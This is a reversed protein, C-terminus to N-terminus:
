ISCLLAIGVSLTQIIVAFEELVCVCVCQDRDTAPVKDDPTGHEEVPLSDITIFEPYSKILHDIAPADQTYQYYIAYNFLTHKFLM